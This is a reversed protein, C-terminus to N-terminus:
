KKSSVRRAAKKLAAEFDDKSFPQASPELASDNISASEAAQRKQLKEDEERRSTMLEEDNLTDLIHWAPLVCAIGTNAETWHNPKVFNSEQSQESYVPRWLPIHGWDIGLLWPGFCGSISQVKIIPGGGAVVGDTRGPPNKSETQWLVKKRHEAVNEAAEGYYHQDTQVFVPSGSFGSLSRCEVLFAEQDYGQCKIPESPDAMLSINGFRTIPANKQVGAHTVLRGVLFADDGLGMRYAKIIEPTIFMETGIAWWQFTESPLDIPCVEVDCGNPNPVWNDRHTIITSIGGGKKSLRLVHFGNDLIHKNTVAYLQGYIPNTESPYSVLFGSGGAHSGDQAARESSYLFISCDGVQDSIRPM